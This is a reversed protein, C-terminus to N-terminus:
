QVEHAGIDFKSNVPRPSGDIDHDIFSQGSMPAIKDICCDRNNQSDSRLRLDLDPVAGVGVLFDIPSTMPLRMVGSGTAESDDTAVYSLTCNSTQRSNRDASVNNYIISNEILYSGGTCSVAPTSPSTGRGNGYITAFRLSGSSNILTMGVENSWLMLNDITYTVNELRVGVVTNAYIRARDLVLTCDTAGIGTSSSDIQVSTLSLKGSGQCEVAKGFPAQLEVNQVEIRQGSNLLVRLGPRQVTSLIKVDSRQSGLGRLLLGQSPASTIEISDYPDSSASILVASRSKEIAAAVGESLKCYPHLDSGDPQGSGGCDPGKNNVFLVDSTPVCSGDSSCVGSDCETALQCRRCTNRECIPTQTRPNGRTCDAPSACAVSCRGNEGCLPTSPNRNRCAIDDVGPRCARCSLSEADCIPSADDRCNAVTRCSGAAQMSSCAVATLLGLFGTLGSLWTVVLATGLARRAPGLSSLDQM